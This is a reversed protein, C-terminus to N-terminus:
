RRQIPGSPQLSSPPTSGPGASVPMAAPVKEIYGGAAALRRALDALARQKEALGDQRIQTRQRDLARV